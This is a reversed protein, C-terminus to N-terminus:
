EESLIITLLYARNESSFLALIMAISTQHVSRIPACMNDTSSFLALKMAISSPHVLRIAGCPVTSSFLASKM